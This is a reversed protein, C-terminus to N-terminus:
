TKYISVRRTLSRRTLSKDESEGTICAPCAVPDGAICLLATVMGYNLM